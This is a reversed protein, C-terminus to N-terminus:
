AGLDELDVASLERTIVDGKKKLEERLEALDRKLVSLDEPDDIEKELDRELDAMIRREIITDVDLSGGFFKRLKQARQRKRAKLIRLRTPDTVTSGRRPNTPSLVDSPGGEHDDTEVDIVSLTDLIDLVDTQNSRLMESVNRMATHYRAAPTQNKEEVAVPRGNKRTPNIQETAVMQAPPLAGFVRELKSTRKTYAQREEATLPRQLGKQKGILETATAAEDELTQNTLREGLFNQLKQLKKIRYERSTPSPPNMDSTGSTISRISGESARRRRITTPRSLSDRTASIFDSSKLDGVVDPTTPEPVDEDEDGKEVSVISPASSSLANTRQRDLTNGRSAGEGLTPRRGLTGLDLANLMDRSGADAKRLPDTLVKSALTEDLTQGLMSAIKKNRKTLVRKQEPALENLMPPAPVLKIMDSDSSRRSIGEKGISEESGVVSERQAALQQARLQQKPLNAGFFDQLKEVRKLKSYKDSAGADGEGPRDITDMSAISREDWAPKTAVQVGSDGGGLQRGLTMQRQIQEYAPREGFFKAIKKEKHIRTAKRNATLRSSDDFYAVIPLQSYNPYYQQVICNLIQERLKGGGSMMQLRTRAAAARGETTSADILATIDEALQMNPVLPSLDATSAKFDNDKLLEEWNNREFQVFSQGKLVAYIIEQAEDFLSADVSAPDTPCGVDRRIEESLNIRMPAGTCFYTFYLYRAFTFREYKGLHQFIEAEIWFLLNEAAHDELCFQMFLELANKNRLIFQLRDDLTLSALRSRTVVEKVDELVYSSHLLSADSQAAALSNSRGMENRSQFQGLSDTTSPTVSIGSKTVHDLSSKVSNDVVSQRLSPPLSDLVKPTPDYSAKPDATAANWIQTGEYVNMVHVSTDDTLVSGVTDEFKLAVMNEDCLLGIELPELEADENNPSPSGNNKEGKAPPFLFKYAYEAEIQHSLYEITGRKDVVVHLTIQPSIVVTIRIFNELHNTTRGHRKEAIKLLRLRRTAANQGGALSVRSYEESGGSAGLPSGVSPSGMATDGLPEVMSKPRSMGTTVSSRRTQGAPRPVPSSVSARRQQPVTVPPTNIKPSPAPRRSDSPVDGSFSDMADFYASPDKGATSMTSVQRRQFADFKNILNSVPQLTTRDPESAGAPPAGANGTTSSSSDAM